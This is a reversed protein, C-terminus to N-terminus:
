LDGVTPNTVIAVKVPFDVEHLASGLEPFIKTGIWIPYSREGLGVLIKEIMRLFKRETLHRTPGARLISM